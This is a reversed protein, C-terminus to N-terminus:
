YDDAEIFGRNKLSLANIISLQTNDIISIGMFCLLLEKILIVSDVNGIVRLYTM